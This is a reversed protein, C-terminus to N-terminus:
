RVGVVMYQILIQYVSNRRLLRAAGRASRRHKDFLPGMTALIADKRGWSGTRLDQVM